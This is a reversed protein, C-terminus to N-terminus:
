RSCVVRPMGKWCEMGKLLACVQKARRLKDLLQVLEEIQREDEMM